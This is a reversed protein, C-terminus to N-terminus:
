WDTQKFYVSPDSDEPLGQIRRVENFDELAKDNKGLMYLSRGRLHYVMSLFNPDRGESILKTLDKISNQFDKMERYLNARALLVTENQPELKHAVNLDDLAEKRLGKQALHTSRWVYNGVRPPTNQILWNIELLLEDYKGLPELSLARKLHADSVEGIDNSQNIIIDTDSIVKEFAQERYRRNLREWIFELNQPDHSIAMDLQVYARQDDGENFLRQAERFYSEAQQSM